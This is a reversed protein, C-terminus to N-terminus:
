IALHDQRDMRPGRLHYLLQREPMEELELVYPGDLRKTLQLHQYKFFMGRRNQGVRSPNLLFSVPQPYETGSQSVLGFPNLRQVGTAIDENSHAGLRMVSATRLIRGFLSRGCSNPFTRM